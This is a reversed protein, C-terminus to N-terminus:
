KGNEGIGNFLIALMCNDHGAFNHALYFKDMNFERLNRKLKGGQTKLYYSVRNVMVEEKEQIVFPTLRVKGPSSPLSGEEKKIAPLSAPEERREPNPQSCKRETM